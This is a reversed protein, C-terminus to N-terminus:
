GSTPLVLHCFLGVLPDERAAPQQARCTRGCRGAQRDASRAPCHTVGGFLVGCRRARYAASDHREVAGVLGADSGGRLRDAVEDREVQGSAASAFVGGCQQAAPGGCGRRHRCSARGAVVVLDCAVGTRARERYGDSEARLKKM